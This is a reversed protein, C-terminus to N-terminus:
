RTGLAECAVPTQSGPLPIGTERFSGAYSGGSRGIRSTGTQPDDLSFELHDFQEDVRYGLSVVSQGTRLREALFQRAGPLDPQGYRGFLPAVADVDGV